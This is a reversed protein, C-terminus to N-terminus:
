QLCNNIQEETPIASIAGYKETTLAGVINAKTVITALSQFDIVDLRVVQSVVYGIFADGAGTTDVQKVKISPVLIQQERNAVLAGKSGLTVVVYECGLKLVEEVARDIDQCATIIELEELSLKVINSKAIFMKSAVTFKEQKNKFLDHRYNPDFIILKNNETAYDLLKFYSKELDGGLFATASSFHFCDFNSLDTTDEHKFTSDSGRNFVFDREGEQDISVYAFTTFLNSPQVYTANVGLKAISNILYEGFPDNSISGMFYSDVGFQSMVAAANLPAGGAKKEFTTVQALPLNEKAVFDILAEGPCLVKYNKM